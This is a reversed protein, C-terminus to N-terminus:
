GQTTSSIYLINNITAQGDRFYKGLGLGLVMGVDRRPLWVQFSISQADAWIGFRIGVGSGLGLGGSVWVVAGGLGGAWERKQKDPRDPATPSAASTVAAPVRGDPLVRSWRVCPHFNGMQTIGWKSQRYSLELWPVSPHAPDLVLTM